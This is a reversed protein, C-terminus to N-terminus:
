KEVAVHLHASATYGFPNVHDVRVVFDGPREFRHTTIAFGDAALKVANGDSRVEVPPSGDGFNWVEKSATTNFSRVKFTVPQGVRIGFTPSYNAQISPPKRDPHDRDAVIVVAFDYSVNGDATTVKLIESHRGPTSYTRSVIPETSTSGDEFRWEVQRIPGSKSWSRTADLTTSEGSWLLAHPRAVAIVPPQYQRLYAQWLYAYGEETGWKGSPQRRKIEFHLHSWGGSGGEKGLSGLRSGLRIVRGPVVQPDFEKLHSYRYYWGHGDRLYIVDYRPEVPTDHRHGDLVQNGVSVILADTAAVIDVLGESGGIDLGSHYYIPRQGPVDGGDVFVPENAMQTDCAFWRQKVPYGFADPHVWPSAAPWLRLRADADLGWFSPTGNKNFGGTVPCDIQVGGVIKPLHYMGSALTTQVGNIDVAVEAQRVAFCVSDRREKVSILKVTARSGDSLEVTATEGVKLDVVRNLPELTAPPNEAAVAFGCSIGTLVVLAFARSM